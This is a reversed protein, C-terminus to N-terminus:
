KYAWRKERARASSEGLLVIGSSEVASVAADVARKRELTGKGAGSEISRTSVEGKAIYGPYKAAGQEEGPGRARAM